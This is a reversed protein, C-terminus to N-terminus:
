LPGGPLGFYFLLLLDSEKYALLNSENYTAKLCGLCSLSLM